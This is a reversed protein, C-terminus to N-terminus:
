HIHPLVEEGFLRVAKLIDAQPMGPFNLRVLLHTVGLVDRQEICARVCDEPAGIIFRDKILDDLTLGADSMGPVNSGAGWAHYARYKEAIYPASDALARERTQAVFLEVCRAFEVLMPLGAMSRTHRYLAVQDKITSVTADQTAIWADAKLAARRIAPEATAGLWIPPRPMQMPKPRISINEFSVHKGHFTADDQEWLMKLADIQEEFRIARTRRNVNFANYEIDRYGLAAGFILRGGSIIDLTAFQEAIEIVNHLPLLFINTGVTLGGSEASLRALLPVTQFFQHPFTLYHQSLWLSDYGCDRIVQTQELHNEFQRRMDAEAPHQSGLFIGVKM